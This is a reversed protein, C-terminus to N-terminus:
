RAGASATMQKSSKKSERNQIRKAFEIAASRGVTALIENQKEADSRDRFTCCKSYATQEKADEAGFLFNKADERNVTRDIIPEGDNRNLKSEYVTYM